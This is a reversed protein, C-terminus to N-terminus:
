FPILINLQGGFGARANVLSSSRSNIYFSPGLEIRIGFRPWKGIKVGARSSITTILKQTGALKVEVEDNYQNMSSNVFMATAKTKLRYDFGLGANFYVTFLRERFPYWSLQIPVGLHDSIQIIEKVKLYEITTENQISMFYFYEDTVWYSSKVLTGKLRTFRIGASLGFKNNKSRVEMRAGAYIKTLSTSFNNVRYSADGYNYYEARIFDYKKKNGGIAEVGTELSFFKPRESQAQMILALLCVCTTM